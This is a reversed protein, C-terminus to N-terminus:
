DKGNTRAEEMADAMSYALTALAAQDTYVADLGDSAIMGQMAATAFMDRRQRREDDRIMKRLRKESLDHM